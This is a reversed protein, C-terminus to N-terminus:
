EHKVMGRFCHVLRGSLDIVHLGTSDDDQHIHLQSDVRYTGRDTEIWFTLFGEQKIPLEEDVVM